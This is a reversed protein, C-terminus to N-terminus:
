MATKRPGKLVFVAVWAMRQLYPIKLIVNDVRELFSLLTTFVGTKRFPVAGLVFLHFFRIDIRDFYRLGAMIEPVGLIHEFEWKTRLHPTRRRYYHIFPNHRLAETCVVKGDRKLIRSLEKYAAGLDLHHLAGYEHILDFTRDAFETREADMVSFDCIPGAGATKALERANQIAVRSIDIGVVRSTGKAAMELAIEGNGCCYDLAVNDKLKGSLLTDRYAFSSRAISYFRMNSFHQDFEKERDVYRRTVGDPCADTHYEYGRV